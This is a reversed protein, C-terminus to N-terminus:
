QKTEKQIDVKRYIKTLLNDLAERLEEDGPLGDKTSSVVRKAVLSIYLKLYKAHM